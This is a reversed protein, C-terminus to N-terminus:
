VVTCAAQSLCFTCVQWSLWYCYMSVLGVLGLVSSSVCPMQSPLWQLVLKLDSTDRLWPFHAVVGSRGKM